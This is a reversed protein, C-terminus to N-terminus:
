SVTAVLGTSDVSVAAGSPVYTRPLEYQTCTLTVTMMTEDSFAAGTTAEISGIRAFTQPRTGIHSAAPFDKGGDGGTLTNGIGIVFYTDNTDQVM